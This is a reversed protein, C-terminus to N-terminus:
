GDSAKSRFERLADQVRLLGLTLAREAECLQVEARTKFHPRTLMATVHQECMAACTEIMRLHHGVAVDWDNLSVM